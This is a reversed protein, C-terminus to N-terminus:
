TARCRRQRPEGNNRVGGGHAMAEETMEPSGLTAANAYNTECKLQAGKQKWDRTWRLGVAGALRRRRCETGRSSATLSSLPGRQSAHSALTAKPGRTLPVLYSQGPASLRWAKHVLFYICNLNGAFKLFEYLFLYQESFHLYFILISLLVFM